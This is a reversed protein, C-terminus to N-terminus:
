FFPFSFLTDALMSRSALPLHVRSAFRGDKSFAGLCGLSSNGFYLRLYQELGVEHDIMVSDEVPDVVQLASVRHCIRQQAYRDM